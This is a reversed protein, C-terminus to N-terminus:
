QLFAIEEAWFWVWIPRLNLFFYIVDNIPRDAIHTEDKNQAAVIMMTVILMWVFVETEM